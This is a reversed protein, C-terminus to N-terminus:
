PREIEEQHLLVLRLNLFRRSSPNSLSDLRRIRAAVGGSRGANAKCRSAALSLAEHPGPGEESQLTV